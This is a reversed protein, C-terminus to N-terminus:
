TMSNDCRMDLGQTLLSVMLSMRYVEQQGLVVSARPASSQWLAGFGAPEEWGGSCTWNLGALQTAQLHSASAPLRPAPLRPRPAPLCRGRSQSRERLSVTM